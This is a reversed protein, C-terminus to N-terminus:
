VKRQKDKRGWAYANNDIDKEIFWITVNIDYAATHLCIYWLTTYQGIELLM